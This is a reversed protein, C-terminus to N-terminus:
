DPLGSLLDFLPDTHEPLTAFVQRIEEYRRHRGPDPEVTDGAHVMRDVATEVDAYRGHGVAACVAAGVAAAGRVAPREVQRGFVDAVVQVMLDSRAGGGTVLMRTAAAGSAELLADTHGRMTLAIGELASRYLHAAGHSGHLGLVAGRRHPADDPPLWDPVTVLGGSGPPLDWAAAELRRRVAGTDPPEPVGATVLQELWSATWMGRRIGASEHLYRGPVAAANVWGRGDGVGYERAVTMAAVYTGLSLLLTGEELVGAGLAEVAKDNATAYVPLGPRLGTQEAAPGTVTGLLGGPDVLEPLLQVPMGTRELEEASDVWRRTRPDLPWTGHYCAASDRREGTLRLGLYGAASTVLSVEPAVDELRRSVRPDMWSAVPETLRDHDDVLARCSRIGCLGIGALDEPRGAYDALLQRVAAVLSEWLDDDPHVARGGPGLEYPRLPVVATVHVTGLDDIVSVKTSQSGGDVALFHSTM